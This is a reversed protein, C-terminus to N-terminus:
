EPSPICESRVSLLPPRAEPLLRCELGLFATAQRDLVLGGHRKSELKEIREQEAKRPAEGEGREFIQTGQKFLKDLWRYFVTPQIDAETCLVSAPTKEVLHRRLLSM